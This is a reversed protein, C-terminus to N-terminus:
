MGFEETLIKIAIRTSIGLAMGDPVFEAVCVATRNLLGEVSRIIM